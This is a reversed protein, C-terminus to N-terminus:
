KQEGSYAIVILLLGFLEFMLGNIMMSEVTFEEGFMGIDTIIPYIGKHQNAHSLQITRYSYAMETRTMGWILCFVGVIFAILNLKEIKM